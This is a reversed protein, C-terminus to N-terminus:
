SRRQHVGGRYLVICQVNLVGLKAGDRELSLAVQTALSSEVTGFVVLVSEPAAHGQYEFLGYTGLEGNFARLLRAVRHETSM